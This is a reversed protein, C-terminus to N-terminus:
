DKELAPGLSVAEVLALALALGHELYPEAAILKRPVYGTMDLRPHRSFVVIARGSTRAPLVDLGMVAGKGDGAVMHARWPRPWIKWTGELSFVPLDNEVHWCLAAPDKCAEPQDSILTVKKWGPLARFVEPRLSRRIAMEAPAAVQVAVEVRDLRGNARSRVAALVRREQNFASAAKGVPVGDLGFSEPAAMAASPRAPANGEALRALAKLMVYGAAVTIAPEAFPSRQALRRTVWNADRVNAHGEVVLISYSASTTKKGIEEKGVTIHFLGPAFDGEVLELDVGEAQPRLWLKGKLNWLPVDLEWAVERDVCGPEREHKSIVDVRRFAPMAKGYSGPDVIVQRIKEASAAVRTALLVRVPRAGSPDGVIVLDADGLRHLTTSVDEASALNAAGALWLLLIAGAGM